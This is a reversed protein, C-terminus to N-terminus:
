LLPSWCIIHTLGKMYLKSIQIPPHFGHWFTQPNFWLFADFYTECKFADGWAIKGDHLAIHCTCMASGTVITCRFCDAVIEIRTNLWCHLLVPFHHLASLLNHTYKSISPTQLTPKRQLAYHDLSVTQMVQEARSRVRRSQMPCWNGPWISCKRSSFFRHIKRVFEGSQAKISHLEQPDILCIITIERQQKRHNHQYQHYHQSVGPWLYSCSHNEAFTAAICGGSCLVCMSCKFFHFLNRPVLSCWDSSPPWPLLSLLSFCRRALLTLSPFTKWWCNGEQNRSLQLIWLSCLSLSRCWFFLSNDPEQTVFQSSHAMMSVGPRFSESLSSVSCILFITSNRLRRPSTLLKKTTRFPWLGLIFWEKVNPVIHDKNDRGIIAKPIIMIFLEADSSPLFLDMFYKGFRCICRKLCYNKSGLHFVM